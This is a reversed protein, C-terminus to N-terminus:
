PAEIRIRGDRRAGLGGDLCPVYRCADAARRCLAPQDACAAARGAQACTANARRVLEAACGETCANGPACAAGGRVFEAMVTALSDAQRVRASAPIPSFFGSGGDALYETTAVRFFADAALPAFCVGTEGDRASCAGGLTRCDGDDECRVDTAPAFVEACSPSACPCRLHVLAGAVHVPTRCERRAAARAAHEFANALAAGGLEAYVVPDEFPVVHVLTALDVTGAPLDHRLSSAGIVALDAEAVARAAEAAFNGLPSDGGTAGARELPGPADALVDLTSLVDGAAPRYPALLEAMGPEDPTDATVPVLSFDLDAVEFGDLPDYHDGLRSATDDLELRVRGLYKGYAGSHVIPVRRPACRRQEGWGDRITGGGCDDVWDPEDLALHQHGGLVIDIGSTARVLREDADLGVHTVVVVLDVVPRLLDLARQVAGAASEALEGLENPRTQLRAVTSTNGVGVVGVRLGGADLVVFPEVVASLGGAGDPAYNAALLPFRALTRYREDVLAAGRDLEHNGLAQAQVGLTDFALVEPEGGFREFALSGQFLDGADLALSRPARAREVRMLTALRAFGGVETVSQAAGLGRRADSAGILTRWPFLESHTDASHLLVLELSGHLRPPGPESGCGLACVGFITLLTRRV